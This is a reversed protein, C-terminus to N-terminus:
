KKIIKYGEGYISEIIECTLKQHLKNILNRISNTHNSLIKDDWIYNAVYDMNFTDTCKSSLMGLLKAENQTLKIINNYKTLSSCSKDWVYDDNLYIKDKNTLEKVISDLLKSFNISNLPKIVYDSLLLKISDLLYIEDTHATLMIIKTTSDIQRIKKTLELGTLKPMLNDLILIDPKKEKYIAFAEEGDKALYVTDFKISMMTYMADRIGSEDDAILISLNYKM